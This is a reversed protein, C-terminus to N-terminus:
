ETSRLLEDQLVMWDVGVSVFIFDEKVATITEELKSISVVSNSDVRLLEWPRKRTRIYALGCGLKMSESYSNYLRVAFYIFLEVASFICRPIAV